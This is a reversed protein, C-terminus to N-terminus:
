YMNFLVVKVNKIATVVLMLLVSKTSLNMDSQVSRVNSLEEVQFCVSWVHDIVSLCVNLIIKVSTLTPLVPYVNM